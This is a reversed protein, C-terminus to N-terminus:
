RISLEAARQRHAIAQEDRGIAFYARAINRHALAFEPRLKLAQKYNEIAQPYRKRKHHAAGLAHYVEADAGARMIGAECVRAAEGPRDLALYATALNAYASSLGPNDRIVVNLEAAALEADGSAADLVALNGRAEAFGPLFELVREYIAGAEGERGAIRYAEAINYLVVALVERTELSRMYDDNGFGIDFRERYYWDQHSHGRRLMEYNRTVAGDDYRVLFHTGVLVGCVPIDLRNALTLFLLGLGICDGGGKALVSEPFTLVPDRAAVSASALDPELKLRGFIFDSVADAALVSHADAAEGLAGKLHAACEATARDIARAAPAPDYHAGLLTRSVDARLSQLAAALRVEDGPLALHRDIGRLFFGEARHPRAPPPALSPQWTQACGAVVAAAVVV